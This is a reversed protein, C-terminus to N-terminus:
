KEYNYDKDIPCVKCIRDETKYKRIPCKDVCRMGDLYYDCSNSCNRWVGVMVAYM